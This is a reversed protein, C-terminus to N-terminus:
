DLTICSISCHSLPIRRWTMPREIFTLMGNILTVLFRWIVQWQLPKCCALSFLDPFAAKLTMGVSSIMGSDFKPAMVSRLNLIVVFSEMDGGSTREYGCGLHVGCVGHAAM